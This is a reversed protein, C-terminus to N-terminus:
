NLSPVRWTKALAEVGQRQIHLSLGFKAHPIIRPYDAPPSASQPFNGIPSDM